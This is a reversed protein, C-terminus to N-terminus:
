HHTTREHSEGSDQITYWGTVISRLNNWLGTV